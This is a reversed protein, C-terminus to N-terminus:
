PACASFSTWAINDTCSSALLLQTMESLMGPSARKLECRKGNRQQFGRSAAPLPKQSLFFLFIFILFVYSPEFHPTWKQRCARRASMKIECSKKARSQRAQKLHAGVWSRAATVAASTFVRELFVTM